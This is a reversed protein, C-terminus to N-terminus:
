YFLNGYFILEGLAELVDGSFVAALVINMETESFDKGSIRMAYPEILFQGSEETPTVLFQTIMEEDIDTYYSTVQVIRKGDAKFYHWENRDFTAAFAGYYTSGGNFPRHNLVMELYPNDIHDDGNLFALFDAGIVYPKGFIFVCIVVIAIIIEITNWLTKLPNKKESKQETFEIVENQQEIRNKSTSDTTQYKNKNENSYDTQVNVLKEVNNQISVSVGVSELKNKVEVAEDFMKTEKITFPLNKLMKKVEVPTYSTIQMVTRLVDLSEAEASEIIVSHTESILKTGCSPCYSSGEDFQKGCYKCIM